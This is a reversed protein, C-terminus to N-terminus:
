PSVDTVHIELYDTGAWYKYAILSVIQTDDEYAVGNLGDMICKCVNDIDAKKIPRTDHNLCAARKKKSYSKPVGHFIIVTLRIPIDKGLKEGGAALFERAIKKEFDKTKKPTYIHAHGGIMSARPREKGQIDDVYFVTKKM